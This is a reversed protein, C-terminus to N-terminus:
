DMVQTDPSRKRPDATYLIHKRGPVEYVVCRTEKRALCDRYKQAVQELEPYPEVAMKCKGQSKHRKTRTVLTKGFTRVSREATIRIGRMGADPFLSALSIPKDVPFQVCLVTAAGLAGPTASNLATIEPPGRGDEVYEAALLVAIRMRYDAQFAPAVYGSGEAAPLLNKTEEAQAPPQPQEVPQGNVRQTEVASYVTPGCASVFLSAASCFAALVVQKM